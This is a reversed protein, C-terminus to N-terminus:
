APHNPRRLRPPHLDDVQPESGVVDVVLPGPVDLPVEVGLHDGAVLGVGRQQQLVGRDVGGALAGLGVLPREVPRRHDVDVAAPLDGPVARALEHAVRDDPQGLRDVDHGVHAAELVHHDPDARVEADVAVRISPGCRCTPGRRRRRGRPGATRGSRFIPAMPMRTLWLTVICPNANLQSLSRPQASTMMGHPMTPAPTVDSDRSSPRSTCPARPAAARRSAGPRRGRSLGPRRRPHVM